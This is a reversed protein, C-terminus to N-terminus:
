NKEILTAVMNPSTWIGTFQGIFGRDALALAKRKSTSPPLAVKPMKALKKMFQSPHYKMSKM